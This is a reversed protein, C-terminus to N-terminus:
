AATGKEPQAGNEPQATSPAARAPREAIRLLAPAFVRAAGYAEVARDYQGQPDRQCAILVADVGVLRDSVDDVDRLVPAGFRRAVNAERDVVAVLTADAEAVGLVAIEALEGSGVLALRDGAARRADAACQAYERKAKKFFSLSVELYKAVLRSKEAFGKPTLYYAYRKYPATRAKVFGKAVARKMLANLMGVSVSVRKSLSQQSVVEGRELQAFLDIEAEVADRKQADRDARDRAPEARDPTTRRTEAM